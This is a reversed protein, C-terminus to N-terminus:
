FYILQVCIVFSAKSCVTLQIVFNHNLWAVLAIHPMYIKKSMIEPLLRSSNTRWCDSLIVNLADFFDLVTPSCSRSLYGQSQVWCYITSWIKMLILKNPMLVKNASNVHTSTQSAKHGKKTINLIDPNNCKLIHLTRNHNMLYPVNCSIHIKFISPHSVIYWM